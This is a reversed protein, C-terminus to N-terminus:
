NKFRFSRLSKIMGIGYISKDRNKKDLYKDIQRQVCEKEDFFQSGFTM